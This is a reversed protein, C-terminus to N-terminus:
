RTPTILTTEQEPWPCWVNALDKGSHLSGSGAKGNLVWAMMTHEDHRPNSFPTGARVIVQLYIVALAFYSYSSATAM